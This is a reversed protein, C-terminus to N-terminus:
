SGLALAVMPERSSPDPVRDVIADLSELARVVAQAVDATASVHGRDRVAAVLAQFAMPDDAEALIDVVTGQVHIQFQPALHGETGGKTLVDEMDMFLQIVPHEYNELYYGGEEVVLGSEILAELHTTLREETVGLTKHLSSVTPAHGVTPRSLFAMLIRLRLEPTLVDAIWNRADESDDIQVDEPGLHDPVPIPEDRIVM